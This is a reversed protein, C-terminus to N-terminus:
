FILPNPAKFVHKIAFFYYFNLIVFVHFLLKAELHPRIDGSLNFLM